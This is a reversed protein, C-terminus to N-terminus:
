ATLLDGVTSRRWQWGCIREGGPFAGHKTATFADILINVEEASGIPIITPRGQDIVTYAARSDRLIGFMETAFGYPSDHHRMVFQIFDFIENYEGNWIPHTYDQMAYTLGSEFEDVPRHYL